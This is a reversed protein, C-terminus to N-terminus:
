LLLRQHRIQGIATRAVVARAKVVNTLFDKTLRKARPSDFFRYLVAVVQEKRVFVGVKGEVTDLAKLLEVILM